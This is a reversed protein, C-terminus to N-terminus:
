RRGEALEELTQEMRGTREEIEQLSSIMRDAEEDTIAGDFALTDLRDAVGNVLGDVDMGPADPEQGDGLGARMIEGYTRPDDRAQGRVREPIKVTVWEKADTM